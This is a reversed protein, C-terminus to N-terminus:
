RKKRTTRFKYFTDRYSDDLKSLRDAIEKEFEPDYISDEIEVEKERESQSLRIFKEMETEEFPHLIEPHGLMIRTSKPACAYCLFPYVADLDCSVVLKGPEKQKIKELSQLTRKLPAKPYDDLTAKCLNYANGYIENAMYLKVLSVRAQMIQYQSMDPFTTACNILKIARLENDPTFDSSLAEITEKAQEILTYPSRAAFEENLIEGSFSYEHHFEERDHHAFIIQKQEDIFYSTISKWGYPLKKKWLIKQFEMDIFFACASDEGFSNALQFIAYRGSESIGCAHAFADTERIFLPNYERDTVAIASHYPEDLNCFCAITGVCSMVFNSEWLYRHNCPDELRAKVDSINM